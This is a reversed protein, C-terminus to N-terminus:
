NWDTFKRLVKDPAYLIIDKKLEIIKLGLEISSRNKNTKQDKLIDFFISLVENYMEHKKDSLQSQFTRIKDHQQKIIYGLASALLALMVTIVDSLSISYEITIPHM